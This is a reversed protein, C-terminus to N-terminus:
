QKQQHNHNNKIECLAEITELGNPKKANREKGGSYRQQEQEEGSRHDLKSTFAVGSYEMFIFSLPEAYDPCLDPTLLIMARIESSMVSEYSINIPHRVFSNM